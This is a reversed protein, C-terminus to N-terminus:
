GPVLAPFTWRGGGKCIKNKIHVPMDNWKSKPGSRLVRCVYIFMLLMVNQSHERKGEYVSDFHRKSYLRIHLNSADLHLRSGTPVPHVEYIWTFLCFSVLYLVRPVEFLVLFTLTGPRNGRSTWWISVMAALWMLPGIVIVSNCNLLLRGQKERLGRGCTCNDEWQGWSPTLGETRVTEPVCKDTDMRPWGRGPHRVLAPFRRGANVLSCFNFLHCAFWLLESSRLCTWPRWLLFSLTHVIVHSYSCPFISRRSGFADFCRLSM